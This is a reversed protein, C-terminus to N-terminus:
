WKDNYQCLSQTMDARLYDVKNYKDSIYPKVCEEKVEHVFLATELKRAMRYGINKVKM